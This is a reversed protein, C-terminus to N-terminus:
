LCGPELGLRAVASNAVNNDSTPRRQQFVLLHPVQAFSANESPLAYHLLRILVGVSM